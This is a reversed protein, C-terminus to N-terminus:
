LAGASPITPLAGSLDWAQPGVEWGLMMPADNPAAFHGASQSAPLAGNGSAGPWFDENYFSGDVGYTAFPAGGQPSWATGVSFSSLLTPSDEWGPYAAFAAATPGLSISALEGDAHGTAYCDEIHQVGTFNPLPDYHAIFSGAVGAQVNGTAFSNRVDYISQGGSGGALGGGVGDDDGDFRPLAVVNGTAYSWRVTAASLSGVLGGARDRALVTGTALSHHIEGLQIEGVLGGGFRHEDAIIDGHAECHDITGTLVGTIGGAFLLQFFPSDNDSHVESWVELDTVSGHLVRGVVGGLNSGGTVHVDVYGGDFNSSDLQGAVGGVETMGFVSGGEVTIDDLTLEDGFGLLSGVWSRDPLDVAFRALRMHEFHAGESWGFLGYGYPIAAQAQTLRFGYITYGQGNYHGTFPLEHTGIVFEDGGYLYWPRLRVDACQVFHGAWGEPHDAIDALQHHNYIEFPDDATGSGIADYSVPSVQAACAGKGGGGEGAGPDGHEGPDAGAEGRFETEDGPQPDCATTALALTASTM